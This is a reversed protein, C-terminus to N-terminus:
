NQANNEYNYQFVFYCTRFYVFRLGKERRNNNSTLHCNKYYRFNGYLTVPEDAHQNNNHKIIRMASGITSACVEKAQGPGRSSLTFTYVLQFSRFTNLLVTNSCILKLMNLVVNFVRMYMLM